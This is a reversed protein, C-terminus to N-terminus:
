YQVTNSSSFSRKIIKIKEFLSASYLQPFQFAELQRSSNSVTLDDGRDIISGSWTAFALGDIVKDPYTEPDNSDFVTRIREVGQISM